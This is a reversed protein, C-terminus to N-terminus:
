ASLANMFILKYTITFSAVYTALGYDILVKADWDINHWFIIILFQDYLWLDLFLYSNMNPYHTKSAKYVWLGKILPLDIVGFNDYTISIM